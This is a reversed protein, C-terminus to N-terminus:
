VIAEAVVGNRQSNKVNWRQLTKKVKRKLKTKMVEKSIVTNYIAPLACIFLVIFIHVLLSLDEFKKFREILVISVSLVFVMAVFKVISHLAQVRRPKIQQVLYEFM